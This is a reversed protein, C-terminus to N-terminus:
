RAAVEKEFQEKQHVSPFRIIDSDYSDIWGGHKTILEAIEKGYRNILKKDM